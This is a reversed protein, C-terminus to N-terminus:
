KKEIKILIDDEVVTDTQNINFTLIVKDGKKLETDEKTEVTWGWMHGRVDTLVIEEGNNYEVVAERKYTATLYNALVIFLIAIICILCIIFAKKFEQKNM